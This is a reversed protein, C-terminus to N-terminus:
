AAMAAGPRRYDRWLAALGAGTLAAIAPSLMTLYYRHYFSAVSFFVAMTVLWAGWLLLARWRRAVGPTSWEASWRFRGRRALRPRAQGGGILLGLGALPLLWGVQGALQQNLLRLPGREGNEGGPGGGIMCPGAGGSPQQGPQCGGSQGADAAPVGQGPEFAAARGAGSRGDQGLLRGLGNYGLALDLVSNHESGGVYPRRDAPTLDVAVAWSLSVALLVTTALALHALRRRWRLPSTLLYVLVLAPLVLYAQLMKINFGLGVLAMGAVLWRLRGTEAAHTVAWAALLVVLVLLSDITNNRGTAVNVPAVALALAALLGAARGFPRSVLRYLVAVSLVGALAQPLLLSFASFGFLKASAAQIWFGLPPKDVTVFGGPDYAAFFFNHWSTLMSRVTAAYYANPYGARDLRFFNLFTALGLIAGLGLRHWPLGATLLRLTAPLEIPKRTIIRSM